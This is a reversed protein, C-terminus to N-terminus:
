HSSNLRTSKRDRSADDTIDWGPTYMRILRRPKQATPLTPGGCLGPYGPDPGATTSLIYAISWIDALSGAHVGLHSGSPAASDGGGRNLAGCPTKIACNARNGPPHSSSGKLQTGRGLDSTRRTPM